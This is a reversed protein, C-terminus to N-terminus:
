LLLQNESFSKEYVETKDFYADLIDKAIPAIRGGSTGQEVVIVIAIEPNDFPAFATFVGTDSKNGSVQVSGTKGGVPIPYGKFVSASTGTETVDRMGQLIAKINAEEMPVTNLVKPVSELLIESGDYKKIGKLLTPQYRIGGNVLTAVYNAIQLPTFTHDSQGISASLLDGIYWKKNKSERYTPGAFIGKKEGSLGLNTEEGLGFLKGYKELEDAGTLLGSKYFFYNCSVEIAGTINVHGHTRGTARFIWCKPSATEVETFVGKDEIITNPTIKGSELAAVGVLMKFVSGPPYLGAVARNVYPHLPDKSVTAYDASFTELSYTPYSAMALIQGTNVDIVVGSGGAVDGGDKGPGASARISNITRALSEELVGQLKLDISLIVTSGPVTETSKIINTIRGHLDLEMSKSGNTGRLYEEYLREIGDKGVLEDLAYGKPKLADYETKDMKGIRGLVHACLTTDYQRSPRAEVEVGPFEYSLETVKTVLTLDIDSAFVFPITKSFGSTDMEYRVGIISRQQEKTYGELEYRKVMREMYEGVPMDAAYKREALYKLFRKQRSNEPDEETYATGDGNIPLTDTYPHGNEELLTILRLINDGQNETSWSSKNLKIIYSMTNTVMPQENRDLIDGRSAKIEVTTLIREQSLALNEEGKIIQLEFIRGTFILCILIFAAMLFLIRQEKKRSDM